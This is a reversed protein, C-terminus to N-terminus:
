KEKSFSTAQSESSLSRITIVVNKGKFEREQCDEDTIFVTELDPNEDPIQISM